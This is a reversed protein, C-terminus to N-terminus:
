FPLTLFSSLPVPLSDLLVVIVTRFTVMHCYSITVLENNLGGNLVSPARDNPALLNDLGLIKILCHLIFPLHM